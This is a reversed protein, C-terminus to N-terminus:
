RLVVSGERTPNETRVREMIARYRVVLFWDCGRRRAECGLLFISLPGITTILGTSVLVAVYGEVSSCNPLNETPDISLNSKLVNKPKQKRKGM